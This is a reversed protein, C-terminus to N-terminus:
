TDKSNESITLADFADSAADKAAGAADLTLDPIQGVLTAFRTRLTRHERDDAHWPPLLSDCDRVGRQTCSRHAEFAALEYTEVVVFSHLVAFFLLLLVAVGIGTLLRRDDEQPNRQIM